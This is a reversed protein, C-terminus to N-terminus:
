MHTWERPQTPHSAPFWARRCTEKFGRPDVDEPEKAPHEAPAPGLGGGGM